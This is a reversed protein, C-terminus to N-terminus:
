SRPVIFDCEVPQGLKCQKAQFCSGFFSLLLSIHQQQYLIINITSQTLKHLLAWGLDELAVLDAPEMRASSCRGLHEDALIFVLLTKESNVDNLM